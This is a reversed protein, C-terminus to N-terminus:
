GGISSTLLEEEKEEEIDPIMELLASQLDTAYDIWYQIQHEALELERTLRHEAVTMGGILQLREPLQWFMKDHSWISLKVLWGIKTKTALDHFLFVSQNWKRNIYNLFRYMVVEKIQM